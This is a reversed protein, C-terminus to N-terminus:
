LQPIVFTKDALWLEDRYDKMAILRASGDVFLYDSGDGYAQLDLRDKSNGHPPELFDMYFHRSGPKQMGLLLTNSPAQVSALRVEVNPNDWTGLDNFANMIFSTNNPSDALPDANRIIFNDQKGPAAYVKLDKLYQGLLKPWSVRPKSAPNPLQFDHEGAYTMFAAGIQRMNSLGASQNGNRRVVDLVPFILGALVGIIAIVVLLELLTFANRHRIEPSLSQNMHVHLWRTSTKKANGRM